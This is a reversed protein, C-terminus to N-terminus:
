PTIMTTPNFSLFDFYILAGTGSNDGAKFAIKTPVNATNVVSLGTAATGGNLSLSYTTATWTIDLYNWSGAVFNGGALDTVTTNDNLRYSIKNASSFTLDIFRQTSGTGTGITLNGKASSACFYVRFSGTSLAGSLDRVAQAAQLTSGDFLRLCKGSGTVAVIDNSLGADVNPITWGSVTTIASGLTAGEFDIEVSSGLPTLTGQAPASSAPPVVAASGGSSGGPASARTSCGTLCLAMVIVLVMTIMMFKVKEM